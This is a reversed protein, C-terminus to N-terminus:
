TSAIFQVYRCSCSAITAAWTFAILRCIAVVTCCDSYDERKKRKM